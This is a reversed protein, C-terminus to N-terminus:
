KEGVFYLAFCEQHVAASGGRSENTFGIKETVGDM